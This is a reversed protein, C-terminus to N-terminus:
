DSSRLNKPRRTAKNIPRQRSVFRDWESMLLRRRELMDGRQYARETKDGVVHALAAEAIERAHITEEAVWSRFASRFGHVTVDTKGMRRLMMLLAMQSLPNRRDASFVWRTSGFGDLNAVIEFARGVLPVRHERRAKMREAPITWVANQFDFESYQAHLVETTRGATLVAFELALASISESKRLQAIFAPIDKYPMANFHRVKQVSRRPPLARDLHGRWRAPNEGTRHGRVTAWDLITEIRGRLRSATETRTRWLPDLVQTIHSVDINQVPLRGFVPNAYAEITRRWQARHKANRWASEHSAIYSEAAQAFTISRADEEIARRVETKRNEVPDIGERALRRAKSAEERATSLDIQDARGLGMERVRGTVLRVRVLWSRRPRGDPGATVQLFLGGGDAYLRGPRSQRVM